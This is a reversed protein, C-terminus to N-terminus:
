LPVLEIGAVDTSARRPGSASIYVQNLGRELKIPVVTRGFRGAKIVHTDGSQAVRVTVSAM